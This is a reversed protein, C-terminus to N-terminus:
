TKCVDILLSSITVTILSYAIRGLPIYTLSLLLVSIDTALYAVSIRCKTIKSITLALADDGSGAGGQRIVLGCGIGIFLGGILAALLPQGSLDPLMPPFSEWLRFFGALGITAVASYKLFGKGLFRFAVAYSLFDLVPSIISSPLGTWHNILLILGLVGGETIGTQYHINYVGFSSIATGLLLSFVVKAPFHAQVKQVWRPLNKRPFLTVLREKAKPM